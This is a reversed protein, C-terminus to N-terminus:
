QSVKSSFLNATPTSNIEGMPLQFLHPQLLILRFLDNVSQTAHWTGEGAVERRRRTADGQSAGVRFRLLKWSSPVGESFPSMELNLQLRLVQLFSFRTVSFGKEPSRLQDYGWDGFNTYMGIPLLQVKGPFNVDIKRLDRYELIYCHQDVIDSLVFLRVLLKRHDAINRTAKGDAGAIREGVEM